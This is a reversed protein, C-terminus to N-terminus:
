YMLDQDHESSYMMAADVEAGAGIGVGHNNPQWQISGDASRILNRKVVGGQVGNHTSNEDFDNTNRNKKKGRLMSALKKLPSRKAAAPPPAVSAHTEVLPLMSSYAELPGQGQSLQNVSDARGSVQLGAAAFSESGGTFSLSVAEISNAETATWSQQATNMCGDDIGSDSGNNSQIMNDGGYLLHAQSALPGGGGSNRVAAIRQPPPPPMLRASSTTSQRLIDDEDSEVGTFPDHNDLDEWAANMEAVDPHHHQHYEEYHYNQQQPQEQDQQTNRTPITKHPDPHAAYVERLSREEQLYNSHKYLHDFSEEERIEEDPDVESAPRSLQTIRATLMMELEEQTEGLEAKATAATHEAQKVRVRLSQTEEEAEDRAENAEDLEEKLKKVKNELKTVASNLRAAHDQAALLETEAARLRSQTEAGRERLYHVEDRLATAEAEAAERARRFESAGGQWLQAQAPSDPDSSEETTAVSAEAVLGAGGSRLLQQQQECAHYNQQKEQQEEDKQQQKLEEFDAMHAEELLKVAAAHERREMVLAEEVAAALKVAHEERIEQVQENFRRQLPSPIPDGHKWEPVPQVALALKVPAAATEAVYEAAAVAEFASKIQSDYEKFDRAASAQTELLKQEAQATSSRLAACEARMAAVEAQAFQLASDKQQAATAVRDLVEKLAKIETESRIKTEIEVADNRQAAAALSSAVQAEAHTARRQAAELEAELGLLKEQADKAEVVAVAHARMLNEVQSKFSDAERLSVRGNQQAALLEEQLAELQARLSGADAKGRRQIETISAELSLIESQMRAVEAELSGRKCRESALGTEAAVARAEAAAASAQAQEAARQAAQLQAQQHAGEIELRGAESTADGALQIAEAKDKSLSEMQHEAEAARIKGQEIEISNAALQKAQNQIRNEQDGLKQKLVCVEEKHKQLEMEADLLASRLHDHDGRATDAARRHVEVQASLAAAEEQQVTLKGRQSQQISQLQRRLSQVESQLRMTEANDHNNPNKVTPATTAFSPPVAAPVRELEQRVSQVLSQLQAVQASTTFKSNDPNLAQQRSAPATNGSRFLTSDLQRQQQQVLEQLESAVKMWEQLKAQAEDRAMETRYLRDNIQQAETNTRTKQHNNNALFNDVSRLLDDKKAQQQYSSTTGGRWAGISDRTNLNMTADIPQM